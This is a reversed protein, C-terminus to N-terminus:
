VPEVQPAGRSRSGRLNMAEPPLPELVEGAALRRARDLNIGDYGEDMGPTEIYHTVHALSPHQLLRAMGREGIQGAGIHEHRDLRSGLESKSDNLHIMVLRDLGIRADFANVLADIEDPESLRYGAAWLHATDLCFAVRGDDAGRSAIAELIDALEEVTVGVGFGGGASNELVLKPTDTADDVDAFVRSVGDAIRGIGEEASTGRHSGTHVNVFRAGYGRGAELEHRLVELSRQYFEDDPGALNILYAGHIALPTIDYEALRKRFADLETPPANRRKWATPNDGFVQIAEAGIEKARNVAKVMGDALPLHAGLRRGDPFMPMMTGILHGGGCVVRLDESAEDDVAPEHRDRSARLLTEDHEPVEALRAERLIPVIWLLFDVLAQGQEM